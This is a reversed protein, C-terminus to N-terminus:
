FDDTLDPSLLEEVLGAPGSGIRRRADARVIIGRECEPGDPQGFFLSLPVELLKAITRLDSIGPQSIDREVQSMWGLSRELREAMEALTIGRAKRLARLDAGLTSPTALPAKLMPTTRTENRGHRLCNMFFDLMIERCFHRKRADAGPATHKLKIPARLRPMVSGMVVGHMMQSIQM